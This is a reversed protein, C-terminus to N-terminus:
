DENEEIVVQDSESLGSEVEVTGDDGELGTVIVKEEIEGAANRVKVYKEGNRFLISRQFIKLVNDKQDTTIDIDASMGPKIRENTDLLAFEVKYYVVDQIVTSTPEIEVVKVKYIEDIPFADFIATGEQDLALQDIDSEPVNAELRLDGEQIIKAVPSALSVVEGKEVYKKVILGSVPALLRSKKFDEFAVNLTADARDVNLKFTDRQEPNIDEWNRQRQEELAKNALKLDIKAQTVRALIDMNEMTAILQGEEVQDGLEFNIDQIQGSIKFGVESEFEPIVEGTVSVTQIIEGRMVQETVIDKHSGKKVMVFYLTVGVIGGIVIIWIVIKKGKKM